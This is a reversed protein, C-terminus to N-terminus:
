PVRLDEIGVGGFTAVWVPTSEDKNILEVNSYITTLARLPILKKIQENTIIGSEGPGFVCRVYVGQSGYATVVVANFDKTGESDETFVLERKTNALTENLDSLDMHTGFISYLAKSISLTGRAPVKRETVSVSKSSLKATLNLDSTLDYDSSETDGYAKLRNGDKKLSGNYFGQLTTESLSNASTNSFPKGEACGKDKIVAPPNAGGWASITARRYDNINGSAESAGYQRIDFYGAEVLVIDGNGFSEGGPLYPVFDLAHFNIGDRTVEDPSDATKGSTSGRSSVTGNKKSGGGGCGLALLTLGVIAAKQILLTM